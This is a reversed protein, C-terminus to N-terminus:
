PKNDAPLSDATTQNSAATSTANPTEAEAPTTEPVSPESAPMEQAVENLTTKDDPAHAQQREERLALLLEKGKARQAIVVDLKTQLNNRQEKKLPQDLQALLSKQKAKLQKLLKRLAKIEHQQQQKDQDFYNVLKNLMKKLKM